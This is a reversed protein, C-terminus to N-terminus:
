EFRWKCVKNGNIDNESGERYDNQIKEVIHLLIDAVEIAEYVASEDGTIPDRFASGDTNIELKFM